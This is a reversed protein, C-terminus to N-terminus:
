QHIYSFNFCPYLTKIQFTYWVYLFYYKYFNTYNTVLSVQEDQILVTYLEAYINKTKRVLDHSISSRLQGWHVVIKLLKWCSFWGYFLRTLTGTSNSCKFKQTLKLCRTWHTSVKNVYILPRGTKVGVISFNNAVGIIAVCCWLQIEMFITILGIGLTQTILNSLLIVHMTECVRM